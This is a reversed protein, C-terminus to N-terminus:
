LHEVRGSLAGGTVHARARVLGAIREDGYDPLGADGHVSADDDHRVVSADPRDGSPLGSGGRRDLWRFTSRVDDGVALGFIDGNRKTDFWRFLSRVDGGVFLWFFRGNRDRHIRGFARRRSAGRSYVHSYMGVHGDGCELARSWRRRRPGGKPLGDFPFSVLLLGTGAVPSTIHAAHEIAYKLGQVLGPAAHNGSTAIPFARECPERVVLACVTRKPRKTPRLVGSLARIASVRLCQTSACGSGVSAPPRYGSAQFHLLRETPQPM